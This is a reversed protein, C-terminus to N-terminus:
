GSIPYSERTPFSESLFFRNLCFLLVRDIKLVIMDSLIRQPLLSQSSLQMAERYANDADSLIRQPLLSQSEAVESPIGKALMTPFSESLFFRNLSQAIEIM